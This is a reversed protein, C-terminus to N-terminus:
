ALAEDLAGAAGAANAATLAANCSGSFTLRPPCPPSAGEASTTSFAKGWFVRRAQTDVIEPNACDRAIGVAQTVFQAQAVFTALQHAFQLEHHHALLVALQAFHRQVL